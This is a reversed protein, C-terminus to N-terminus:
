SPRGEAKAIAAELVARAAAYHRSPDRIVAIAEKCAALLDPAADRLAQERCPECCYCPAAGSM